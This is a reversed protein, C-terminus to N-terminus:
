KRFSYNGELSTSEWPIQQNSSKVRVESRVKQFVELITLEPNNMYKLLSSTYLGNEGTGDSATSGPATAYAILSGSPANMFALGQGKAKRTWSREFPNNRCADLIVINVKSGSEEMRSLLRGVEVCKFEVEAESELSVNVPILYNYGEVQIGHGAYFFLGTDFQRLRKGFDDIAQKMTNQNVNLYVMTEFGLIRLTEAMDRADNEPNSLFGSRKYDSNGIVLALRRDEPIYIDYLDVDVEPVQIGATPIIDDIEEETFKEDVLYYDEAFHFHLPTDFDPNIVMQGSINVCGYRGNKEVCGLGHAFVFADDYAPEIIIDGERNIYGWRDNIKVPALGESFNKIDEFVPSIIWDEDANVLGWRQDRNKKFLLGERNYGTHDLAIDYIEEGQRDVYIWQGRKKVKALGNRFPWVQDYVPLIEWEHNKNIFGYKGNMKFAALGEYFITMKRPTDSLINGKRNIYFRNQGKTVVTFHKKFFPAADDFESPIVYNGKNDIYGWKNESMVAALGNYFGTAEKFAPKIKWRGTEDIFGTKGKQSAISLWNQSLLPSCVLPASLFIILIIHRLKNYLFNLLINKIVM